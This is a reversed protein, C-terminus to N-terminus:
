GGFIAIFLRGGFAFPLACMAAFAGLFVAASIEQSLEIRRLEDQTLFEM